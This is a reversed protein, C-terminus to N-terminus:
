PRLCHLKTMHDSFLVLCSWIRFFLIRFHACSVRCTLWDNGWYNSVYCKFTELIYRPKPCTETHYCREHDISTGSVLMVITVCCSLFVVRSQNCRYGKNDQSCKVSRHETPCSHHNIQMWWNTVSEKLSVHFLIFSSKTTIFNGNQQLQLLQSNLGHMQMRRKHYSYGTCLKAALNLLPKKTLILLASPIINIRVVKFWENLKFIQQNIHVEESHEWQLSEPLQCAPTDDREQRKELCAKTWQLCESAM